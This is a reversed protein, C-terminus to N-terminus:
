LPENEKVVPYLRHQIHFLVLSLNNMAESIKMFSYMWFFLQM